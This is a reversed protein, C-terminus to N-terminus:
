SKIEPETTAKPMANRVRVVGLADFRWFNWTASHQLRQDPEVAYECWVGLQSRLHHRLLGFWGHLGCRRGLALRGTRV